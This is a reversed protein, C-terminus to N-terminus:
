KFNKYTQINNAFVYLFTKLGQWETRNGRFKAPVFLAKTWLKADRRKVLVIIIEQSFKGHKRLLPSEPDLISFM